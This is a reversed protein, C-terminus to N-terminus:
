FEFLDSARYGKGPLYKELEDSLYKYDKSIADREASTLESFDKGGMYASMREVVPKINPRNVFNKTVNRNLASIQRPKRGRDRVISKSPKTKVTKTDEDIGALKPEAGVPAEEAEEAKSAVSVAALSPEADEAKKPPSVLGGKNTESKRGDKDARADEERDAAIQELAEKSALEENIKGDEDSLPQDKAAKENKKAALADEAPKGADPTEPNEEDKGAPTPSIRSFRDKLDKHEEIMRNQILTLQDKKQSAAQREANIAFIEEDNTASALRTDLDAIQSDIAKLQKDNDNLKDTLINVRENIKRQASGYAFTYADGIPTGDADFQRYKAKSGDTIQADKNDKNHKNWMALVAANAAKKTKVKITKYMVNGDEDLMENGAGDTLAIKNQNEDMAYLLNGERDKLDVEEYENKYLMGDELTYKSLIDNEAKEKKAAYVRDYIATFGESFASVANTLISAQIAGIRRISDAQALALQNDIQGYNPAM